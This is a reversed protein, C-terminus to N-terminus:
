TVKDGPHRRNKSNLRSKRGILSKSTGKTLVIDDVLEIKFLKNWVSELEPEGSAEEGDIKDAKCFAGAESM